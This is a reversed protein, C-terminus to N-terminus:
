RKRQPHRRHWLRVTVWTLPFLTIAIVGLAFLLLTAYSADYVDRLVTMGVLTPGLILVGAAGMWRRFSAADEESLAEARPGRSHRNPM